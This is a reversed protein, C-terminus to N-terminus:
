GRLFTKTRRWCPTWTQAAPVHTNTPHRRWLLPGPARPTGANLEAATASHHTAPAAAAAEPGTVFPGTRSPLADEDYTYYEAVYGGTPAVVGANRRAGRVAAAGVHGAAVAAALLVLALPAPGRMAPVSLPPATSGRREVRRPVTASLPPAAFFVSFESQWADGGRGIM